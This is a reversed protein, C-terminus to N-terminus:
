DRTQSDQTIMVRRIQERIAANFQASSALEDKRKDTLAEAHHMIRAGLQSASIKGAALDSHALRTAERNVNEEDVSDLTIQSRIQAHEKRQQERVAKEDLDVQERAAKRLENKVVPDNIKASVDVLARYYEADTKYDERRVIDTASPLDFGLAMKLKKRADM